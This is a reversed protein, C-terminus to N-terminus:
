VLASELISPTFSELDIGLEQANCSYQNFNARLSKRISDIKFTVSQGRPYDQNDSPGYSWKQGLDPDDLLSIGRGGGMLFEVFPRSWRNNLNCNIICDHKGYLELLETRSMWQSFFYIPPYAGNIMKRSDKQLAMIAKQLDDPSVNESMKLTLEVNEEIRFEESFARIVSYVEEYATPAGVVLFKYTDKKQKNLQIPEFVPRINTLGEVVFSSDHFVHDMVGFKTQYNTEGILPSKLHTIGICNFNGDYCFDDPKSHIILNNAEKYRFMGKIFDNSVQTQGIARCCIEHKQSLARVYATASEAYINKEFFPAIYLIKSM